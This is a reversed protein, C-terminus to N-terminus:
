SATEGASLGAAGHGEAGAAVVEISGGSGCWRCSVAEVVEDLIEEDEVTLDGGLSYHHFARSRRTTTVDFRTLNGCAACRYRTAAV